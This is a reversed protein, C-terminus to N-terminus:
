RTLQRVTAEVLEPPVDRRITAQGIGALLVWSISGAETKKDYAMADVIARSDTGPASIPLGFRELIRRQRDVVDQSALGMERSIHAAGMMGISVAEGHLYRGYGTAAELAHGITHGYNLLTRRGLTEREDESVVQAKIAASSRIIQTTIDGKLAVLDEAHEEFLDFLEKDLILGHKIAEAWGEALERPGLTSLAEVDALVLSPQYFAGVLNKGQPLNVAVKGGISADVMAAVSTPVQVFRMGRLFTAAVFGALDGVVGGGLAVITHGREARVEALWAYIDEAMALKKSEEGPPILYCHAPIDSRELSSQVRRGYARFVNEDSVIYATAVAGMGNLLSGLEALIGEGVLIPYSGGSHSVTAALAEGHMPDGGTEQALLRWIRVLEDAVQTETLNDTDLSKHAMDYTGQRSAKLSRIRELPDHGALLPRIQSAQDEAALRQYIVELSAELCVVVGRRLMLTRNDPDSFAGGGTAIVRRQGSCARGIEEKELIRFATEGDDAFIRHAPKGARSAIEEDIDVFDWGLSRAALTGARSKGTGSFGVLILNQKLTRKM